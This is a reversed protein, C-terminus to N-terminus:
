CIRPLQDATQLDLAHSSGITRLDVRGPLAQGAVSGIVIADKGFGRLVSLAADAQAEPMLAVFRGENAVYLPDIGLIECAGRV